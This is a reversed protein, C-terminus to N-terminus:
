SHAGRLVDRRPRLLAAHGYSHGNASHQEPALISVIPAMETQGYAQFLNVGPLLAMTDQVVKEQIPSAGYLLYQLSSLDYKATDPHHVVMQIMAPVMLAANIQHRQITEMTAVPNFSPLIVHCARQLTGIYGIALDAMHFMPASRLLRAGIPM